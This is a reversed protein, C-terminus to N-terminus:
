GLYIIYNVAAFPPMTSVPEGLGGAQGTTGEFKVVDWRSWVNIVSDSSGYVTATSVGKAPVFGGVPLVTGSSMSAGIKGSGVFDHDHVPMQGVSLVVSGAGGVDALDAGGGAGLPVRGRMDPVGFTAVGDGGWVAGLVAAADPYDAVNVLRGDCMCWGDPVVAGAFLKVEGVLVGSEGRPGAELPVVSADSLRARLVGAADAFLIVRGPLPVPVADLGSQLALDFM